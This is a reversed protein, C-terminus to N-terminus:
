VHESEPVPHAPAVRHIRGDAEGGHDGDTRLMEAVHQAAEVGHVFMEPRRRPLPIQRHQHAQQRDPVVVEETGVLLEILTFGRQCPALPSHRSKRVGWSLGGNRSMAYSDTM